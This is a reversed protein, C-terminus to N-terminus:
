KVGFYFKWLAEGISGPVIEYYQASKDAQYSDKVNGNSDYKYYSLTKHAQPYKQYSVKQVISSLFKTDLSEKANMSNDKEVFSFLWPRVDFDIDVAKIWSEVYNGTKILKAPQYFYWQQENGASIVFDEGGCPLWGNAKMSSLLSFTKAADKYEKCPNLSFAMSAFTFANTFDKQTNYYTVLRSFCNIKLSQLDEKREGYESTFGDYIKETALEVAIIMENIAKETLKSKLDWFFTLGELERIHKANLGWIEKLKKAAEVLTASNNSEVAIRKMSSVILLKQQTNLESQSKEFKDLNQKAAQYNKLELYLEFPSHYVGAKTWITIGCFDLQNEKFNKLATNYSEVALKSQELDVEIEAICQYATVVSKWKDTANSQQILKLSSLVQNKIEKLKSLEKPTYAEVVTTDVIPSEVSTTDQSNIGDTSYGTSPTKHRREEFFSIYNKIPQKLSEHITCNDIALILESFSKGQPFISNSTLILCILLFITRM